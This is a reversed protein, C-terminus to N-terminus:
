DENDKLNCEGSQEEKQTGIRFFILVVSSSFRHSILSPFQRNGIALQWNANIPVRSEGTLFDAIPLRCDAIPL